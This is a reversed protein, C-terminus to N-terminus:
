YGGAAPAKEGERRLNLLIEKMRALDSGGPISARLTKSQSNQLDILETIREWSTGKSIGEQLNDLFAKENEKNERISREKTENYKEYFADIAKEAKLVMEEKKRASEEDRKKIEERQREKWAKIPESDEEVQTSTFAPAPLVSQYSYANSTSTPQQTYSQTPYPTAGYPIATLAEGGSGGIDPFSEEFKERERDGEDGGGGYGTIRVENGNGGGFGSGSSSDLAPFKSAQTSASFDNNNAGAAATPSSSSFLDFDDGSTGAGNAPGSPTPKSDDLDPFAEMGGGGGGSHGGGDTSSFLDADEGLAARERALYAAVADDEAM